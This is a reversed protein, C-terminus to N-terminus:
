RIAEVVVSVIIGGLIIVFASFTGIVTNVAAQGGTTVPELRERMQQLLQPPTIM